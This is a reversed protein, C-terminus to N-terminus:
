RGVGRQRYAEAPVEHRGVLIGVLLREIRTLTRDGARHLGLVQAVWGESRGVTEAVWGYRLGLRHVTERAEEVRAAYSAPVVLEHLREHARSSESSAGSSAGSSADGPGRAPGGGGVSAIDTPRAPRATADPM